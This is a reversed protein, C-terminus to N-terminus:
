FARLAEPASTYIEFVRGELKTIRFSERIYDHMGCLKMAGGEAALHKWVTILCGIMQSSCATVGGFNVLLKKPQHEDIFRLMEDRLVNIQGLDLVHHDLLHMVTVDVHQQVDFGRYDSM